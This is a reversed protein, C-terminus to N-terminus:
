NNIMWDIFIGFGRTPDNVFVHTVAGVLRGNQLIPSGSMGQVIGGTAALLKEDKVHIILSKEEANTQKVSKIIEVDYYAPTSGSITTYIQAKGMKISKNDGLQVKPYRDLQTELSRGFIGCFLNKDVIGKCTTNKGFAGRLEGAEGAKAKVVGVINCDYINGKDYINKSSSDPDVIKHGLGGFRKNDARIYTLTGVGSVENKVLVGLKYKGAVLDYLPDISLEINADDRLLRVKVAKGESAEIIKAISQAGRIEIENIYKIIDGKKVGALGAPSATGQKTNIEVLDIVLAGDLSAVVGIPVGGLYVFNAEATATPSAIGGYFTFLIILILFLLFYTRRKSFM